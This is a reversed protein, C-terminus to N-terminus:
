YWGVEIEGVEARRAFRMYMIWAVSFTTAVSEVDRGRREAVENGRMEREEILRAVDTGDNMEIDGLGSPPAPIEPGRAIDIEAAVTLKFEDLDLGLKALLNEYLSHCAKTDKREEEQDACAFTLLLSFSDASTTGTGSKAGGLVHKYAAGLYGQRKTTRGLRSM